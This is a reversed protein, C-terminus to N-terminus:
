NPKGSFDLTTLLVQHPFSSETLTLVCGKRRQVTELNSFSKCSRVLQCAHKCDIVYSNVTEHSVFQESKAFIRQLVPAIFRHKVAINKITQIDDISLNMSSAGRPKLDHEVDDSAVEHIRQGCQVRLWRGMEETYISIVEGDTWQRKVRSYLECQNGVKWGHVSDTQKKTQLHRIEPSDPAVQYRRKGNKVDVVWDSDDDKFVEVVECQVWRKKRRDYIECKDGGRWETQNQQDALTLPQRQAMVAVIENVILHSSELLKESSCISM